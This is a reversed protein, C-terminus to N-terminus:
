VTNNKVVEKDSKLFLKKSKGKYQLIATLRIIAHFLGWFYARDRRLLSKLTHYPLWLLHSILIDRDTANIWVFTFQNRWVIKMKNYLSYNKEIAGKYHEHVVVSKKEFFIKYGSKVARYSLDIDEWYFPNYLENLGELKDWISKRFAGSGCSVWLTSTKDLDGRSHVLFGRQWSGIGRGRLVVEGNEISEDMCGVAFVKSDAFHSLLPQWFHKRPIVDSNLLILIDGTAVSVGRNVNKSFGGNARNKNEIIVVKIQKERVSAKFKQIVALSQDTSADDPIIIEIMGKKYDSVSDLVKPLNKKLLEEGNYNPIIISINM